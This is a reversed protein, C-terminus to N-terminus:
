PKPPEPFRHNSDPKRREKAHQDVRAKLRALHPDESMELFGEGREGAALGKQKKERDDPNNPKM